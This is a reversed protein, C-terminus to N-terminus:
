QAALSNFLNIYRNINREWSFEEATKLANVSFKKCLSDDTLLNIMAGELERSNGPQVLLGNKGSKLIEPIGDVNSAVIPLGSALAEVIVVGFPENISPLVFIDAQAYYALTENWRMEGKFIVYKEIGLKKCIKVLRERQPGDGVFIFKVKYSVKRLVGPIADLLYNLGKVPRLAGVFLCIKDKSAPMFLRRRRVDKFKELDVFNSILVIKEEKAGCYIMCRKMEESVCILLDAKTAVFKNTFRYIACGLRGYDKSRNKSFISAQVTFVCKIKLLRCIHYIGAFAISDHCNVIDIRKRFFTKLIALMYFIVQPIFKVDAIRIFSVHEDYRDSVVDPSFVTVDVKNKSLYGCLDRVNTYVGSAGWYGGTVIAVHM